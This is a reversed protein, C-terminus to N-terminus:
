LEVKKLANIVSIDDSKNYPDMNTRVTGTLFYLDQPIANLELRIDQRPIKSIDEGDILISGTNLDLM